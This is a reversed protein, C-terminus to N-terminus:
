FKHIQTSNLKVSDSQTHETKKKPHFLIPEYFSKYQVNIFISSAMTFLKPRLNTKFVNEHCNILFNADSIGLLHTFKHFCMPNYLTKISNLPNVPTEVNSM